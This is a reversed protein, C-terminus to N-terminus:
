KLLEKTAKLAEGGAELPDEARHVEVIIRNDYDIDRLAQIIPKFNIQGKGPPLHEDGGGTNDHIHVHEINEGFERIEESIEKESNESGNRQKLLYAHAIDLTVCLNDENEVFPGLEGLNSYFFYPVQINELGIKVSKERAHGLCKELSKHFNRKLEEWLEQHEPALFYGPHVTVIESGISDCLDISQKVRKVALDRLESYYSGLNIDFFSAHITPEIKDSELIQIIEDSVKLSDSPFHYSECVIEVCESDLNIIERISEELESQFFLPTPLGILM